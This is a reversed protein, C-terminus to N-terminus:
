SDSSQSHENGGSAGAPCFVPLKQPSAVRRLGVLNEGTRPQGFWEDLPECWSERNIKQLLHWGCVAMQCGLPGSCLSWYSGLGASGFLQLALHSEQRVLAAHSGSWSLLEVWSSLGGGGGGGVFLLM